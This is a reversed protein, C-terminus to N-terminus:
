HSQQGAVNHNKKLLCSINTPEELVAEVHRIGDDCLCINL